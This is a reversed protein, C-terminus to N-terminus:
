EFAARLRWLFVQFKKSYTEQVQAERKIKVFSVQTVDIWSLTQIKDRFIPTEVYVTSCEVNM